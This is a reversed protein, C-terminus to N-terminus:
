LFLWETMIESFRLKIITLEAESNGRSDLKGLLTFLDSLISIRYWDQDLKGGAKKYSAATNQLFQGAIEEEGESPCLERLERRLSGFDLYPTGAFAEDFDLLSVQKEDERILIAAPGLKGHCLCSFGKVADLLDAEQEIFALLRLALDKGLANDKAKALLVAEAYTELEKGNLPAVRGVKLEGDLYGQNNFGIRHLSALASGLAAATKERYEQAKFEQTNNAQFLEPLTEQLTKGEIFARVTYPSRSGLLPNEQSAYLLKPIAANGTLLQHIRVEKEFGCVEKDDNFLKLVLKQKQPMTEVLYVHRHRNSPLNTFQVDEPLIGAPALM